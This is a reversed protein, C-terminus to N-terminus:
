FNFFKIVKPLVGFLDFGKGTEIPVLSGFLHNALSVVVVFQSLGGFHETVFTNATEGLTMKESVGELSVFDFLCDQVLNIVAKLTFDIVVFGNSAIFVSIAFANSAAASNEFSFGKNLPFFSAATGVIVGWTVVQFWDDSFMTNDAGEVKMEEDVKDIILNTTLTATAFGLLINLAEGGLDSIKGWLNLNAPCGPIDYNVFYWLMFFAFVSFGDGPAAFIENILDNGELVEPVIRMAMAAILVQVFNNFWHGSTGANNKITNLCHFVVLFDAESHMGVFRGLFSDKGALKTLPEPLDPFRFDFGKAASDAFGKLNMESKGLYFVIAIVAVAIALQTPDSDSDGAEAEAPASETRQQAPPSSRRTRSPSKSVARAM